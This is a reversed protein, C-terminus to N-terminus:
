AVDLHKQGSTTNYVSNHSYTKGTTTTKDVNVHPRVHANFIIQQDPKYPYNFEKLRELVNYNNSQSDYFHINVTGGSTEEM